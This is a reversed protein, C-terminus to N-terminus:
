KAMKDCFQSIDLIHQIHTLQLFYKRASAKFITTLLRISYKSCHVSNFCISWLEHYILIVALVVFYLSQPTTHSTFFYHWLGAFWMVDHATIRLVYLFVPAQWRQLFAPSARHLMWQSEGGMLQISCINTATWKISGQCEGCDLL